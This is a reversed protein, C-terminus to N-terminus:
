SILSLLLIISKCHRSRMICCVLHSNARRRACFVRWSHVRNVCNRACLCQNPLCYPKTCVAYNSIPREISSLAPTHLWTAIQLAGLAFSGGAISEISVIGHAILSQAFDCLVALFQGNESASPLLICSQRLKCSSSRL